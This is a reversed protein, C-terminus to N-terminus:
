HNISVFPINRGCDSLTSQPPVHEPWLGGHEKLTKAVFDSREKTMSCSERICRVYALAQKVICVFSLNGYLVEKTSTDDYSHGIESSLSPTAKIYRILSEEDLPRFKSFAM